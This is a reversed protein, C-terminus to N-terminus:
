LRGHSGAERQELEYLNRKRRRERKNQAELEVESNAATVRSAAKEYAKRQAESKVHGLVSLLALRENLTLDM